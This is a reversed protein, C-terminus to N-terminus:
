SRLTSFLPTQLSGIRGGLLNSKPRLPWHSLFPISLSLFPCISKNILQRVLTNQIFTYIQGRVMYSFLGTDILFYAWDMLVYFFVTSNCVLFQVLDQDCNAVLGRDDFHSPHLLILFLSGVCSLWDCVRCVSAFIRIKFKQFWKEYKMEIKILKWIKNEDRLSIFFFNIKIKLPM